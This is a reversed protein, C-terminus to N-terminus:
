SITLPTIREVVSSFLLFLLFYTPGLVQKIYAYARKKQTKVTNESIQLITAIDAVTKGEMSLLLVRKRQEPLKDIIIRLQNVFEEEIAQYIAEEESPLDTLYHELKRLSAQQDRIYKLANHYVAKYLYTLLGQSNSFVLNSRWVSILCEQVIDDAALADKSIVAAYNCLSGYFNRYLTQWASIKKKNIGELFKKDEVM